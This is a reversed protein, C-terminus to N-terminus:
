EGDLIWIKPSSSIKALPEKIMWRIDIELKCVFRLKQSIEAPLIFQAQSSGLPNLELAQKEKEVGGAIM